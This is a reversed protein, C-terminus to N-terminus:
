SEVLICLKAVPRELMSTKTRVQCSRVNGKKDKSTSEVLGMLWSNRPVSKDVILVIDGVQVNRRQRQWKARQQLTVIYERRWRSWFVDVLYQAQRWRKRAYIDKQEFVGPSALWKAQPNMLMNPTLPTLDDPDPSTTTLPRSNLINEAECFVTNLQDDDVTRPQEKMLSYLIKRTTRIMREWVGGFHSGAPPNFFWEIGGSCLTDIRTQDVKELM